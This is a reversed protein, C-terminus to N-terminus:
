SMRGDLYEAVGVAAGGLMANKFNATDFRIQGTPLRVGVNGTLSAILQNQHLTQSQDGAFVYLSADGNYSHVFVRLTIRDVGTLDTTDLDICGFPPFELTRKTFPALNLWSGFTAAQPHTSFEVVVTRSFSDMDTTPNHLVRAIYPSPLEFSWWGFRIINTMDAQLGPVFQSSDIPLWIAGTIYQAPNILAKQLNESIEGADINLWSPSNLLMFMLARFSDYSMAYYTNAGVNYQTSNVISVVVTGNNFGTGWIGIQSMDIATSARRDITIYNPDIIRGDKESASRNVFQTSALVQTRFSGLVDCTMSCEWFGDMFAWSCFYYRKFEDIYCYTYTPMSTAPISRFRVVPALPSFDGKIEGEYVPQLLAPYDSGPVKFSDAQKMFREYFKIQM